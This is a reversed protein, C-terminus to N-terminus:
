KITSTRDNFPDNEDSVFKYTSEIKTINDYFTLNYFCGNNGITIIEYRDVFISYGIIDKLYFKNFSWESSFYNPLYETFYYTGYGLGINKKELDSDNDNVSTVLNTYFIHITGRHSSCLLYKNNPSFKLDVIQVQDSGRRLEKLLEGSEISFIRLLTGKESASVIYKGSSDFEFIEIQNIHAQIINLYDSRSKTICIQGTNISPYALYNNDDYSITCLGKSNNGTDITKIITLNLFNYIFIQKECIVILVEKTIIINLIKTKFTIEGINAAKLDDWIILKNNPYTGKDVNGVFIIINSKYLMKVLSVGGVIKRAIIKKFPNITYVYFGTYTGFVICDNSQNYSAYLLNKKTFENSRDSINNFNM